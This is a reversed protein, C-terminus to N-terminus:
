WRSRCEKGVRREESRRSCASDTKLASMSPRIRTKGSCKSQTTPKIPVSRAACHRLRGACARTAFDKPYNWKACKIPQLCFLWKELHGVYIIKGECNYRM